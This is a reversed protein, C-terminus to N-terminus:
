SSADAKDRDMQAKKVLWDEDRMACIDKHATCMRHPRKPEGCRDCEVTHVKDPYYREHKMKKRSPSIKSKPVGMNWVGSLLEEITRHSIVDNNELPAIGGAIQLKPSLDSISFTGKIMGRWRRSWRQLTQLVRVAVPDM